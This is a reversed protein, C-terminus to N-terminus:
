SQSVDSIIVDGLLIEKPTSSPVGGCIGVVLAIKIDTFSSRLSAATSSATGKGMGPMHTLVVNHNGIRGTTYTNMDGAQKGFGKYEEDFIADVAQAELPLACIISIEFGSRNRPRM